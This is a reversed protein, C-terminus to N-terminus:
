SVEWRTTIKIAKGQSTNDDSEDTTGTHTGDGSWGASGPANVTSSTQGKQTDHLNTLPMEGDPMREFTNSGTVGRSRNNSGFWSHQGLFHKVLHRMIPLCANIIALSPEAVTWFVPNIMNYSIDSFKLTILSQMRIISIICIRHLAANALTDKRGTHRPIM